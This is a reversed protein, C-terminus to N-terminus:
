KGYIGTVRLKVGHKRGLQEVFKDYEGGYDEDYTTENTATYILEGDFAVSYDVFWYKDKTYEIIEDQLLECISDASKGLQGKYAKVVAEAELYETKTVMKYIIISCLYLSFILGVFAFRM